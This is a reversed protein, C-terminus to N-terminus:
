ADLASITDFLPGSTRHSEGTTIAALVVLAFLNRL